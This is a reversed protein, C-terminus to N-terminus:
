HNQGSIRERLSEEQPYIVQANGTPRRAIAGITRRIIANDHSEDTQVYTGFDLARHRKYDTTTGTIITCPSLLKSVENDHPLSNLLSTASYVLKAIMRTLIYTFNLTNLVAYCDIKMTRIQRKIDGM